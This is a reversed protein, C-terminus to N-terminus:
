LATGKKLRITGSSTRVLVKEGGGNLTLTARQWGPKKSVSWESFDSRIASEDEDAGDVILEVDAKCEAPLALLVDGGSNHITIGGRIERSTAAIRVDGGATVAHIGGGVAPVVIDGGATKADLSGGVRQIRIDGGATDALANGSVSEAKIDGAATIAKLDGTVAGVAIDGGFSKLDAGAGAGALRIEGSHTLIRVRGSVRGVRFNGGSSTSLFDGSVDGRVVEGEFEPAPSAPLVLPAAPAPPAPPAPAPHRTVHVDVRPVRVEVKPITVVFSRRESVLPKADAERTGAALLVVAGNLTTLQVQAGGKGVSGSYERHPDAIRIKRLEREAQRVGRDAERMAEDISIQVDKMSESLEQQLERLDVATSEDEEGHPAKEKPPKPPKAPEGRRAPEEPIPESPRVPLPFTSAITGNMTSASLDFRADKPLTLTVAGNVTQLEVSADTPLASAVADIKGNVTQAELAQRAGRVEISGNVTELQLRGSCDRVRVDGNVTQLEAAVGPPVVIEYRAQVRCDGCDVRGRGRRDGHMGPWRTELSWGEDDHEGVIRTKALMEEARKQTPASVSVTVVASFERGPTAVVDGSVNEVRITQGPGTTGNFRDVRTATAQEGRSVGALMMLLGLALLIWVAVRDARAAPTESFAFSRKMEIPKMGLSLRTVPM